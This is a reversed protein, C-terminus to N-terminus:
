FLVTLGVGIVHAKGFEPDLEPFMDYQYSVDIFVRESPAIGIGATLSVNGWIDLVTGARAYIGEIVTQDLGAFLRHTNLTGFDDTFHGFQYDAYVTLDDTLFFYVGPRALFSYTTDEVIQTGIGLGMFDFSKTKSPAAAFELALGAFFRDSAKHLAGVRVGYTTSNSEAVPISDLGFDMESSLFNLNIGLSTNPWFKRAIQVEASMAEWEFTLGDKLTARNTKIGLVSPQWSGWKKADYAGSLSVVHARTGEEFAILSYQVSSGFGRKGVSPNMGSSAPNPSSSWPSGAGAGAIGASDPYRSFRSQAAAFRLSFSKEELDDAMAAEATLGLVV